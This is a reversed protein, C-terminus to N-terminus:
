RRQLLTVLSLLLVTFISRRTHPGINKVVNKKYLEVQPDTLRTPDPYLYFRIGDTAGPLSLGRVLLVVLMVYPFTATFYVVQSLFLEREALVLFLLLLLYCGKSVSDIMLVTQILTMLSEGKRYVESGELCLLLLHDLGLPSM